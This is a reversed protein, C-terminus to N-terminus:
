QKVVRFSQLYQVALLLKEPDDGMLGMARNCRFCVLGRICRGCLTGRPCCSLDHDVALRQPKGNIISTEPERCVACVGEQSAFMQEYQGATMKYKSARRHDAARNPNAARWQRSYAAAEQLHAKRHEAKQEKMWAM